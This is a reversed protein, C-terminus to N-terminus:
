KRIKVRSASKKRSRIEKDLSNLREKQLGFSKLHNLLKQRNVSTIWCSIFENEFENLDLTHINTILFYHTTIKSTDFIWGEKTKGHKFYSLEFTFTPLNAGIYDM